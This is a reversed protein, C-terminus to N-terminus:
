MRRVCVRCGRSGTHAPCVPLDEFAVSCAACAAGASGRVEGISVGGVAFERGRSKFLVELLDVQVYSDDALELQEVCARIGADDNAPLPSLGGHVFHAGTASTLSSISGFSPMPSAGSLSDGGLPVGGLNPPKTALSPQDLVDFASSRPLPVPPWTRCGRAWPTLPSRAVNTSSRM